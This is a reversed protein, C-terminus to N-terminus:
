PEERRRRAVARRRVIRMRRERRSHIVRADEDRPVVEFVLHIAARLNTPVVLVDVHDRVAAREEEDVAGRAALDEPRVGREVHLPRGITALRERVDRRDGRGGISVQAIRAEEDGPALEV